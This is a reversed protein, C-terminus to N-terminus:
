NETNNKIQATRDVSVGLTEFLKKGKKSTSRVSDIISWNQSTIKKVGKKAGEVLLTEDPEITIISHVKSDLVNMFGVGKGKPLQKIENLKFIVTRLDNTTVIVRTDNTSNKLPIPPLPLEGDELTLITKGARMRSVWDDRNIIFGYGKEGCLIYKEGQASLTGEIIQSGPEFWTTLPATDAKSPLDRLHLSYGRGNQDMLLLHDARDGFWLYKINDGSKIKFDFTKAEELSKAPRWSLWGRETLAIAVPEPAMKDVIATNKLLKKVEVKQDPSIITRRKDGFKETDAELEKIVQKRLSSEKALIGSLRKSEAQLKKQEEEIKTKELRALQRIRVDLVDEAQIEDLGFDEMLSKKPDESLSLVRIVEVIKDLISLRGSLIHLRHLVRDHEDKLRRKVTKIRFLCWQSLWDMVTGLRPTGKDDVAVFNVPINMELDTHACLTKALMDPDIAKDKPKVTLRVPQDKGSHNDFSVLMEGFLKKIRSQEQTLPQKKGNKEKQKPNLLEDIQVMIKEVNTGQPIEFFVLSWNKGKDDKEVKWRARLRLSGRGEEYIKAIEEKTSVIAAGTAFDPGPVYGMFEDISLLCNDKQLSAIVAASVENLQHPLCETALGVAIGSAGNLLLFPLRSPLVVPETTTNDFNQSFDVTDWSLEGLLTEAIPMLKCETYRYAAPPDGDRSGFNGEGQIIPYRMTFPQAVRVMAEYTAGDGHPHYQGLVDGVVRACKKPKAGANLLQLKYMAYLIRRQVPKLGDEVQPIARGKVVNMAYALYAERAYEDILTNEFKSM